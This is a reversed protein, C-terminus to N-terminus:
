QEVAACFRIEDRDAQWCGDEGTVPRFTGLVKPAQGPEADAAVRYGVGEDVAVLAFAFVNGDPLPFTLGGGDASVDCPFAGYGTLFCQGPAAAAPVALALGCLLVAGTLMTKM